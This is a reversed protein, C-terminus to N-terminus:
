SRRRPPSSISSAPTTPAVNTRRTQAPSNPPSPQRREALWAMLARAGFTWPPAQDSTTVENVLGGLRPSSVRVVDGTLHTFGEGPAKRDKTPV